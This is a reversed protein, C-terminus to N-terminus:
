MTVGFVLCVNVGLSIRLLTHDSTRSLFPVRRLWEPPKNAEDSSSSAGGAALVVLRRRSSFPSSSQLAKGCPSRRSVVGRSMHLVAM